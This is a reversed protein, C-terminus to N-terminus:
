QPKILSGTFLCQPTRKPLQLSFTNMDPPL